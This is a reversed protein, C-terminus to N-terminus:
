GQLWIIKVIIFQPKKKGNENKDTTVHDSYPLPQNLNLPVTEKGGAFLGHSCQHHTQKGGYLCIGGGPNVDIPVTDVWRNEEPKMM